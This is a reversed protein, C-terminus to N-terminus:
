VLSVLEQSEMSAAETFVQQLHTIPYIAQPLAQLSPTAVRFPTPSLPCTPSIIPRPTSPALQRSAPTLPKAQKPSLMTALTSTNVNRIVDNAFFSGLIINLVKLKNQLLDKKNPLKGYLRFLRQEDASLKQTTTLPRLPLPFHHLCVSLDIKNKQHPNM